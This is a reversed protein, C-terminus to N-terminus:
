SKFLCGPIFLFKEGLILCAAPNCCAAQAAPIASHQAHPLDQSWLPDAHPQLPWTHLPVCRGVGAPCLSVEAWSMQMSSKFSARCVPHDQAWIHRCSHVRGSHSSNREDETAQSGIQGEKGQNQENKRKEGSVLVGRGLLGRGPGQRGTRARSLRLLEARRGSM